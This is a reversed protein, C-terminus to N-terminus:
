KWDVRTRAKGRKTTPPPGNAVGPKYGGYVGDRIKVFLAANDSRYKQSKHM